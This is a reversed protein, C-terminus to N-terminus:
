QPFRIKLFSKNIETVDEEKMTKNTACISWEVKALCM